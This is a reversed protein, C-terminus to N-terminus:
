HQILLMAKEELVEPMISSYHQNFIAIVQLCPLRNALCGGAKRQQKSIVSLGLSTIQTKKSGNTSFNNIRQEKHYM